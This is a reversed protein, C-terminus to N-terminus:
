LGLEDTDTESLGLEEILLLAEGEALTLGDGLEAMVPRWSLIVAILCSSETITVSVIGLPIIAICCSFLKVM